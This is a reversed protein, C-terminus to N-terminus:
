RRPNLEVVCEIEVPLNEPLAYVGVASRSPRGIEEGFIDILFETAGNAVAPQDYFHEAGAVFVLLKVFSGIVELTGYKEKILSLINLMTQRAFTQGEEISFESGLKGRPQYDSTDACSGSVYLLRGECFEKVGVYSAGNGPWAPLSYGKEQLRKEFDM